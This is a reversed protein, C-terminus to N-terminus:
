ESTHPATHAVNQAHLFQSQFQHLFARESLGTHQNFASSFTMGQRMKELLMRLRHIGVSKQLHTFMWHSYSYVLKQHHMWVRPNELNAYIARGTRKQFTRRLQHLPYRLTQQQATVSAMGERFWLPIRQRAWTRRRCCLQYMLVHTLEHALLKTLSWQYYRTKWTQPSQLLIHDYKAWARVWPLRTHLAQELARHSPLTYLHVYAEKTHWHQTMSKAIEIASVIDSLIPLDKPYLSIQVRV